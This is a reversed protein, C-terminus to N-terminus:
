GTCPTASLNMKMCLIDWLFGDSGDTKWLSRSLTGPQAMGIHEWAVLLQPAQQALLFPQGQTGLKGLLGDDERAM